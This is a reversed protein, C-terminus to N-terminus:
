KSITYVRYKIKHVFTQTYKRFICKVFCVSHFFRIPFYFLDFVRSCACCTFVLLYLLQNNQQRKKKNKKKKKGNMKRWCQLLHLMFCLLNWISFCLSRLLHLNEKKSNLRSFFVCFLLLWSNLSCIFFFLVFLIFICSYQITLLMLMLYYAIVYLM